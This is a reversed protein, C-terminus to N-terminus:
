AGNYYKVMCDQVNKIAGKEEIFHNIHPHETNLQNATKQAVEKTEIIFECHGKFGTITSLWAIRFM